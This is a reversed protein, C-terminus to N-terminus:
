PSCVCGSGELPARPPSPVSTKKCRLSCLCGPLSQLPVSGLRGLSPQAPNTGFCSFPLLRHRHSGPVTGLAGRSGCAAARGRCARGLSSGRTRCPHERCQLRQWSRSCGLSCLAAAPQCQQRGPVAPIGRSQHLGPPQPSPSQM